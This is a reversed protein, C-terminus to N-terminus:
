EVVYIYSNRTSIKYSVGACDSVDKDYTQAADKEGCATRADQLTFTFYKIDKYAKKLKSAGLGPTQITKINENLQAVAANMKDCAFTQTAYEAVYVETDSLKRPLEVYNYDFNLPEEEFSNIYKIFDAERFLKGVIMIESGSTTMAKPYEKDIGYTWSDVYNEIFFGNKQTFTGDVVKGKIVVSNMRDKMYDDSGVRAKSQDSQYFEFNVYYNSLTPNLVGGKRDGQFLNFKITEGKYTSFHYGNALEIDQYSEPLIEYQTDDVTVSITEKTPNDIRFTTKSVFADCSVLMLALLTGLIFKNM